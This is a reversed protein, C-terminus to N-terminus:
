QGSNSISYANWPVSTREAHDDRAKKHRHHRVSGCGGKASDSRHRADQRDHRFGRNTQSPQKHCRSLPLCAAGGAVVLGYRHPLGALAFGSWWSEEVLAALVGSVVAPLLLTAESAQRSPRWHWRRTKAPFYQRVDLM